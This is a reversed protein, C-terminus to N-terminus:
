GCAALTSTDSHRSVERGDTWVVHSVSEGTSGDTIVLELPADTRAGAWTWM